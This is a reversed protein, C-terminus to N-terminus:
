KKKSGSGGADLSDSKRKKSVRIPHGQRSSENHDDKSTPVPSPEGGRLQVERLAEYGAKLMNVLRDHPGEFTGDAKKPSLTASADILLEWDASIRSRAEKLFPFLLDRLQRIARDYAAYQPKIRQMTNDFIIDSTMVQRKRLGLDCWAQLVVSSRVDNSPYAASPVKTGENKLSAPRGHAASSASQSSRKVTQVIRPMRYGVAQEMIIWFISDLDDRPSFRFGPDGILTECSM